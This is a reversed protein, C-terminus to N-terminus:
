LVFLRYYILKIIESFTTSLGIDSKWWNDKTIGMEAPITSIEIGSNQFAREFALKSRYSHYSESILIIRKYGRSKLNKFVQRALNLTVPDIPEIPLKRYLSTDNTFELIYLNIIRDIYAPVEGGAYFKGPEYKFHTIYIDKIIKRRYLSDAIKIMTSQPKTWCEIVAADYQGQIKDDSILISHLSQLLWNGM